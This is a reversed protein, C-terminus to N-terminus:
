GRRRGGGQGTRPRVVDPPHEDDADAEHDAALGQPHQEPRVPLWASTPLRPAMAGGLMGDDFLRMKSGRMAPAPLTASREVSTKERSCRSRIKNRPVCTSSSTALRRHACSKNSACSSGTRSM